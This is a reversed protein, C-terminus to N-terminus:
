PLEETSVSIVSHEPLKVAACHESVLSHTLQQHM